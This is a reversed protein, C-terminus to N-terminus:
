IQSRQKLTPNNFTAEIDKEHHFMNVNVVNSIKELIKWSKSKIFSFRQHYIKFHGFCRHVTETIIEKRRLKQVSEVLKNKNDNIDTLVKMEHVNVIHVKLYRKQVFKNECFECKYKIRNESM